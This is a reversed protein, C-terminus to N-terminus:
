NDKAEGKIVMECSIWIKFVMSTQPEAKGKHVSVHKRYISIAIMRVEIPLIPGQPVLMM